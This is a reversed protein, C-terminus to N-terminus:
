SQNAGHIFQVTDMILALSDSIRCGPNVCTQDLYMIQGIVLSVNVLLLSPSFFFLIIGNEVLNMVM